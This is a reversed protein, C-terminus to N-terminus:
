SPEDTSLSVRRSTLLLLRWTAYPIPRAGAEDAPLMWRRVTSVNVRTREAVSQQTWGAHAFLSRVAQHSPAEYRADRGDRFCNLSRLQRESLHHQASYARYVAHPESM